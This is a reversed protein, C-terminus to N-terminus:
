RSAKESLHAKTDDTGAMRLQDHSRKSKFVGSLSSGQTDTGFTRDISANVADHSSVIIAGSLTFSTTDSLGQGAIDFVAPYNSSFTATFTENLPKGRRKVTGNWSGSLDWFSRPQEGKCRYGGGHGSAKARFRSSSLMRVTLTFASGVGNSSGVSNVTQVYAAVVDGKSDFSWNGALTIFGFQKRTIGYGTVTFNNSFTMMLTGKESGLVSVQWTGVPSISQGRARAPQSVCAGLLLAGMVLLRNMVDEKNNCVEGSLLNKAHKEKYPLPFIHYIFLHHRPLLNKVLGLTM